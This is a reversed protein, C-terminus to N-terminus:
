KTNLGYSKICADYISLYDDKLYMDKKAAEVWTTPIIENSTKAVEIKDKLLKVAKDKSTDACTRYNKQNETEKDSISKQLEFKQVELSQKDTQIKPLAYVFYYAVAGAVVLIGLASVGLLVNKVVRNYHQASIIILNVVHKTLLM